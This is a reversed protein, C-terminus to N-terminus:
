GSAYAYGVVPCVVGPELDYDGVFGLVALLHERLREKYFSAIDTFVRSILPFRKQM